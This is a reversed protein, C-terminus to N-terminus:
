TFHESRSIMNVTGAHNFNKNYKANEHQFFGEKKACSTPVLDIRHPAEM